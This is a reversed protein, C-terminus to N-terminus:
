SPWAPPATSSAGVSLLLPFGFSSLASNAARRRPRRKGTLAPQDRFRPILIYIAVAALIGIGGLLAVAERWSLM